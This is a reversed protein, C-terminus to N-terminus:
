STSTRARSQRRQLWASLPPRRWHLAAPPCPVMQFRPHRPHTAAVWCPPRPIPAGVTHANCDLVASFGPSGFLALLVVLGVGFCASVNSVAVLSVFKKYHTLEGACALHSATEFATFAKCIVMVWKLNELAHATVIMGLMRETCVFGLLMYGVLEHSCTLRAIRPGAVTSSIILIFMPVLVQSTSTRATSGCGVDWASMTDWSSAITENPLYQPVNGM